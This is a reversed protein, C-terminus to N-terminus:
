GGQVPPFFSVVAGEPVITDATAFEVGVAALACARAETFRPYKECVADLVDAVRCKGATEVETEATGAWDRFYSWFRIAVPRM